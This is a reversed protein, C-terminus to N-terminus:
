ARLEWRMLWFGAHIAVMLGICWWYFIEMNITGAMDHSKQLQEVKEALKAMEEPTM